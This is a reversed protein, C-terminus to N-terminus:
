ITKYIVIAYIVANFPVWKTDIYTGYDPLAEACSLFYNTSAAYDLTDIPYRSFGRIYTKIAM